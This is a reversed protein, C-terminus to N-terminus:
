VTVTFVPTFQELDRLATPELDTRLGSGRLRNLISMREANSGSKERWDNMEQIFTSYGNYAVAAYTHEDKAGMLNKIPLKKAVDLQMNFEVANGKNIYAQLNQVKPILRLDQVFKANKVANKTETIRIAAFAIASLPYEVGKEDKFIAVATDEDFIKRIEVATFIVKSSAGLDSFRPSAGVQAEKVENLFDKLDM